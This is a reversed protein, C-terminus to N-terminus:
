RCYSLLLRVHDRMLPHADHAMIGCTALRGVPNEIFWSPAECWYMCDQVAQVVEKAERSAEESVCVNSRSFATCPPSGWALDFYGPKFRAGADTLLQKWNRVDGCIHIHGRFLAGVDVDPNSDISVYEFRQRISPLYKMMAELLTSEGNCLDLIRVKRGRPLLPLLKKLITEIKSREAAASDLLRRVRFLCSEDREDGGECPLPRAEVCLKALHRRVRNALMKRRLRADTAKKRM